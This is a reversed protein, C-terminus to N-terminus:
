PHVNPSCNKTYSWFNLKPISKDKYTASTLIQPSTGTPTTFRPVPRNITRLVFLISSIMLIIFTALELSQIRSNQLTWLNSLLSVIFSHLTVIHVDWYLRIHHHYDASARKVSSWSQEHFKPCPWWHFTFICPLLHYPNLSSLHVITTFSLSLSCASFNDSMKTTRSDSLWTWSKAVAHVTAKRTGRDMPNGLCSYQLPSGNGAGSFRGSGSLSDTEFM